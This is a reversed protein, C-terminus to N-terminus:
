GGSAGGGGAVILYEISTTQSFVFSVSFCFTILFINKM